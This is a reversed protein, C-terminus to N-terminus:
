FKCVGYTECSIILLFYVYSFSVIIYSIIIGAAVYCGVVYVYCDYCSTFLTTYSCYCCVYYFLVSSIGKSGVFIFM